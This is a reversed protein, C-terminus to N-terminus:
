KMRERTLRGDRYGIRYFRQAVPAAEYFAGCEGALGFLGTAPACGTRAPPPRDTTPPHDTM